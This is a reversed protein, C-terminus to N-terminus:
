FIGKNHSACYPTGSKLKQRFTSPILALITRQLMALEITDNKEHISESQATCVLVWTKFNRHPGFFLTELGKENQLTFSAGQDPYELDPRLIWIPHCKVRKKAFFTSFQCFQTNQKGEYLTTLPGPPRTTQPTPRAEQLRCTTPEIGTAVRDRSGGQWRSKPSHHYLNIYPHSHSHVNFMIYLLLPQPRFNAAYGVRGFIGIIIIILTSDLCSM